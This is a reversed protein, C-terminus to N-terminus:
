PQARLRALEAEAAARFRAEAKSAGVATIYREFAAIAEGKNGKDRQAFALNYLAPAYDGKRGLAKVYAEIEGDVDKLRQYVIGINYFARHHKEDRKACEYYTEIAKRFGQKRAPEGLKDARVEYAGALDFWAEANDPKQKVAAEFGAVAADVKGSKLMLMARNLQIDNASPEAALAKDYHDLAKESLGLDEYVMALNFHARAYAPDLKVAEVYARAEQAFARKRGYAVGLNFWCEKLDPKVEVCQQFGAIAEDFNGDGLARVGERFFDEASRRPPDAAQAATSGGMILCAAAILLSCAVTTAHTFRHCRSEALALHM